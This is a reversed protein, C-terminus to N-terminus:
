PFGKQASFNYQGNEMGVTFSSNRAIPQHPLLPKARNCTKLLRAPIEDPGSAKTIDTWLTSIIQLM